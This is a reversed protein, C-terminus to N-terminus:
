WNIPLESTKKLYDNCKLFCGSGIFPNTRNLPSPHGTLIYPSDGIYDIYQKAHNGWLMWIINPNYEVLKAIWNLTFPRWLDIHLGPTNEVVTLATNTLFVGQKVLYSLDVRDMKMDSPYTTEIEKIINRLSPSVKISNSNSFAYGDYIGLNHYPCQGLIVVKIKDPQLDKFIKFMLPSGKEPIIHRGLDRQKQIKRSINYFNPSDLFEGILNYWGTGFAKETNM